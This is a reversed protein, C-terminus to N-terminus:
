RWSRGTRAPFTEAFIKYAAPSQINLIQTFEDYAPSYKFNQKGVGRDDKDHQTLVAEMMGEFVEDKYKGRVVGLAYRVFPSNRVKKELLDRVGITRAYIQGLLASRFRYPTHIYRSDDPRPRHIATKFARSSLVGRCEKCPLSRHPSLDVVEQLCSRSYVRVPDMGHKNIWTHSHEQADLVQRREPESLRAFATNFIDQAISSVSKGGGGSAATREIYTEVRLDDVAGIGPCLVRRFRGQPLSTPSKRFM